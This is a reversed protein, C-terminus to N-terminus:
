PSHLISIHDAALSDVWHHQLPRSRYERYRSMETSEKVKFLSHVYDIETEIEKIRGPSISM